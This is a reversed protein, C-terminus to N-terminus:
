HLTIGTQPYTTHIIIAGLLVRGSVSTACALNVVRHAPIHWIMPRCRTAASEVNVPTLVLGQSSTTQDSNLMDLM